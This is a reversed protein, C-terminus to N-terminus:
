TLKANNEEWYVHFMRKPKVSRVLAWAEVRVSKTKDFAADGKCKAPGWMATVERIQKPINAPAAQTPGGIAAAAEHVVTKLANDVRKVAAEVDDKEMESTGVADVENAESGQSVRVWFYASIENGSLDIPGDVTVTKRDSGLKLSTFAPRM